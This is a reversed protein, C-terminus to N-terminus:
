KREEKTTIDDPMRVTVAVVPRFSGYVIGTAM